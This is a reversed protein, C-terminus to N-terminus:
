NGPVLLLYLTPPTVLVALYPVWHHATEIGIHRARSLNPLNGADVISLLGGAAILGIFTIGSSGEWPPSHICSGGVESYPPIDRWIAQTGSGNIGGNEEMKLTGSGSYTTIVSAVMYSNTMTQNFQLSAECPKIEFTLPFSTEYGLMSAKITITAQGTEKGATFSFDGMFVKGIRSVHNRQPPLVTGGTASLVVTALFGVNRPILGPAKSFDVYYYVIYKLVIRAGPCLTKEFEEPLVNVFLPNYPAPAAAVPRSDAPSALSLILLLFLAQCPFRCIHKM